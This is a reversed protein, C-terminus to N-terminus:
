QLRWAGTRHIKKNKGAKAQDIDDNRATKKLVHGIAQESLHVLHLALHRREFLPLIRLRDEAWRVGGALYQLLFAIAMTIGAAFGGGPLDHGRLFLFVAFTAIVPFMWQMIVSPVLLYDRVTDGESREPRADDYANQIRQQEPKEISDPAPRFRRLLAYVTLAVVALVTIEGLTDFSRFDVLLVNVVNSGGGGELANLLFFDAITDSAPHVLVAYTLAALAGGGAVAVALDRARRLWVSRTAMEPEDTSEIRPPLWRLGLLILVTTVTEVMLQTLALDPASLWLFTAATVIGTGGILTLAALRHYKAMWAGALACGGGILWIGAFLPDIGQLPINPWAPPAGALLVPVALLMLM